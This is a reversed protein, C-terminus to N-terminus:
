LTFGLAGSQDCLRIFNIMLCIFYKFEALVCETECGVKDGILQRQSLLIDLINLNKVILKKLICLGGLSLSMHVSSGVSCSCSWAQAVYDISLSCAGITDRYYICQWSSPKGSYPQIDLMPM